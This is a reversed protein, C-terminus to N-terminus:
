DRLLGMLLVPDIPRDRELEVATAFGRFSRGVAARASALSRILTGRPASPDAVMAPVHRAALSTM